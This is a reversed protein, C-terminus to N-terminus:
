AAGEECVSLGEAGNWVENAGGVRRPTALCPLRPSLLTYRM